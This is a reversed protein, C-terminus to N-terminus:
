MDEASLNAGACTIPTSSWMTNSVIHGNFDLLIVSSGGGGGGNGPPKPRLTQNELLPRATTNFQTIGFTCTEKKTEGAIETESYSTDSQKSCASLAVCLVIYFKKM